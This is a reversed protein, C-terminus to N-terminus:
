LAVEKVSTFKGEFKFKVEITRDSFMLIKDVLREILEATIVDSETSSILESIEHKEAAQKEIEKCHNEIEAIRTLNNKTSSEYNERMYNYEEATINGSIHNEYLSKFMRRNRDIELKLATIESQFEQIVSDIEHHNNQSELSEDFAIKVQTNIVSILTQTLKEETITFSECSGHAKRSNSLCYFVYVTEGKREWGKHRHMGGGCHGCFVKGKFINPTYPTVTKAASKNALFKLREQTKAFDERSVIPEHTNPVRIWENEPVAISKKNVYREKGQVMDGVYVERKLLHAVTSTQWLGNGALNRHNIIGSKQSYRNPTLIGMENLRMVINNLSNGGLFWDFIQKVIPAAEPDIILKHCNDPSKLYGYLPRSGVYEGLKMAQHQQERIKRSIDISYAENIMNKLPLIIGGHVNNKDDSDYNDNVAIFRVKNLPFYKEIYYGTDITNRGLRSLDKVIICNIRGTEIDALMRNFAAREFNTGTTGNDIYTDFVEFDPNLAIHNEIISQQSEVSNGRNKNDEVSLRIYVAVNYYNTMAPTTIEVFKRSKRAM